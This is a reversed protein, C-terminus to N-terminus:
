SRRPPSWSGAGAWSDDATALLTFKRLHPCAPVCSSMMRYTFTMLLLKATEPRTNIAPTHYCSVWFILAQACRPAADAPAPLIPSPPVLPLPARVDGAKVLPSIANTPDIQGEELRMQGLQKHSGPVLMTVGSDETSMDTLALGVRLTVAAGRLVDHPSFNNLDRHWNRFSQGDGDPFVPEAEPDQPFKYTLQAHSVKIDASHMLQVAASLIKPHTPLARMAAVCDEGGPNELYPMYRNAYFNHPFDPQTKPGWEEMHADCAKTVAALAEADLVGPITIHGLQDFDNIQRQSLAHWEPLEPEEEATM